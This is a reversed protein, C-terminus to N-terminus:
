PEVQLACKVGKGLKQATEACAAVAASNDHLLNAALVMMRWRPPDANALLREGATWRDLGLSGAAAREPWAWARPAARLIAAPLVAWVFVGVLVGALAGGLTWIALRRRQDSLTQVAGILGSLIAAARELGRRAESLSAQEAQRMGASATALTQAFAEPSTRLGPQDIIDQLGRHLEALNAIIQALTESPDPADRHEVTLREVARRLLTVEGSLTDFATTPDRGVPPEDDM